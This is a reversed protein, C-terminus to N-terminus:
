KFYTVHNLRNNRMKRLLIRHVKGQRELRAMMRFVQGRCCGHVAMLEDISVYGEPTPDELSHKMNFYAELLRQAKLEPTEM